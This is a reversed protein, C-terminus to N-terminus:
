PTVFQGIRAAPESSQKARRKADYMALDAEKLLGESTIGLADAAAEAMGLSATVTVRRGDLIFDPSLAESVRQVAADVAERYNEILIAFEDGGLRAITDTSRLSGNLREAVRILLEDGVHHSPPLPPLVVIDVTVLDINRM